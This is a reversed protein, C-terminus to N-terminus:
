GKPTWQYDFDAGKVTPKSLVQPMPKIVSAGQSIPKILHGFYKLRLPEPVAGLIRQQGELLRDPFYKNDKANQELLKSVSDVTSQELKREELGQKSEAAEPKYTSQSKYYDSEARYLAGKDALEREKQGYEAADKGHTYRRLKNEADTKINAARAAEASEFGKLKIAKQEARQAAEVEDRLDMLKDSSKSIDKRAEGYSKLGETAGAGINAFANPSTGAMTSLGAQMLAMWPSRDKEESLDAERKSLRAERRAANPDEGLLDQIEKAKYVASEEEKSHPKPMDEPASPYAISNRAEPLSAIGQQTPQSAAAIKSAGKPGKVAVPAGKLIADQVEPTFNLLGQEQRATGQLIKKILDPNNKDIVADLPVGSYKSSSSLYHAMEEPTKDHGYYDALHEKYTKGHRGEINAREALISDVMSRQRKVDGKNSIGGVANTVGIRDANQSYLEIPNIESTDEAEPVDSGDEGNFAVIGGGAYDEEDIGSPLSDIGRAKPQEEV